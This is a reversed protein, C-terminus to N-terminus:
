SCHAMMNPRAYYFVFALFHLTGLVNTWKKLKNKLKWSPSSGLLVVAIATNM